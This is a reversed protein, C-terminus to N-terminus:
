RRAGARLAALAPLCLLAVAVLWAPAARWGLGLLGAGLAALACACAFAFAPYRWAARAFGRRPVPLAALARAAAVSAAACAQALLSFWALATAILLVGAGSALATSGPLAMLVAGIMWAHGGRRWRLLAERRQWDSLHPLRADDLWRLGFLPERAGERVRQAPRRRQHLAAALGLAVGPVLGAALVAFATRLRAGDGGLALLLAATASLAAAVGLAALLVLTRAIRAPAIPAAAWWGHRLRDDLAGLRARASAYACALALLAFPLPLQAILRPVAAPLAASEGGFARLLPGAAAIAALMALGGRWRRWGGGRLAALRAERLWPHFLPPM